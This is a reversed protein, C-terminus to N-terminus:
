ECYVNNEQTLLLEKTRVMLSAPLYGVVSHTILHDGLYRPDTTSVPVFYSWDSQLLYSCQGLVIIFDFLSM